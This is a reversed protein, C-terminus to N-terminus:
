LTFKRDARPQISAVWWGSAIGILGGVLVDSPYHAATMVRTLATGTAILLLVLTLRPVLLALTVAGGFAVAAHSSPFGLNSPDLFGSFPARFSYGSERLTVGDLPRQRAVTMKLLESLIGALGAGCLTALGHRGRGLRWMIVAVALWVWLSGVVRLASYWDNYVVSRDVISTGPEFHALWRLLVADALTAIVLVVLTAMAGRSLRMRIAHRENPTRYTM